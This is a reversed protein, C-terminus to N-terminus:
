AAQKQDRVAAVTRVFKAHPEALTRVFKEIPAKMTGMLMSIAQERNPLSALRELESPGYQKGGVAVLKVVLKDNTKAFASVVRAASGPDELSFALILPGVLGDQMCEFSTGEVAKRALTNKVVRLYVGSERAEKRLQTLASVSLGRYEAAVASHAQAAVAAVEAVVAKKDDLRLAM